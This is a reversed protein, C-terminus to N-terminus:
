STINRFYSIAVWELIGGQFFGHILSDPTSYDVPDCLTLCSQVCAHVYSTINCKLSYLLISLLSFHSPFPMIIYYFPVVSYIIKHVSVIICLM